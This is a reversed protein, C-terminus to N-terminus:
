REIEVKVVETLRVFGTCLGDTYFKLLCNRDTIAWGDCTFPDPAVTPNKYTVTIEIMKKM